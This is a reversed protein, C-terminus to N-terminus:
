RWMDEDIAEFDRSAEQSLGDGPISGAFARWSQNSPQTYGVTQKLVDLVYGNLSKQQRKAREALLKKLRSDVGRLTVQHTQPTNMGYAYLIVASIDIIIDYLIKRSDEVSAFTVM